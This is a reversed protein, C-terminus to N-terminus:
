PFVRGPILILLVRMVGGRRGHRASVRVVDCLLHPEEGAAAESVVASPPTDPAGQLARCSSVPPPPSLSSPRPGVDPSSPTGEPESRSRTDKRPKKLWLSYCLPPGLYVEETCAPFLTEEDRVEPSLPPGGPNGPSEPHRAARSATTQRRTSTFTDPNPSPLGQTPTAYM